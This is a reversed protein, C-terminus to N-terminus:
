GGEGGADKRLLQKLANWVLVAVCQVNHPSAGWQKREERVRGGGDAWVWLLQELADWVLVAVHQVNHPPGLVEDNRM